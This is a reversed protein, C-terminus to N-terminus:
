PYAKEHTLNKMDLTKVGVPFYWSSFWVIGLGGIKQRFEKSMFFTGSFPSWKGVEHIEL